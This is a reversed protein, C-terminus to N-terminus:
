EDHGRPIVLRFFAWLLILPLGLVALAALIVRTAPESRGSLWLALSLAVLLTFTALSSLTYWIVFNDM